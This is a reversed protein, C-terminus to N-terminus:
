AKCAVIFLRRFAFLTVGDARRPYAHRLEMALEKCFAERASVDLAELFPKLATASIWTLVPDDGTMEQTYTTEWIDITTSFPKLWAYYDEPSAVPAPHLLPNLTKAWPGRAATARMLAHSPEAFQNPMQVALVGGSTVNQMLRAILQAHEDLWHLAANSFILDQPEEPTWARADMQRWTAIEGFDMRARALMETSNDVGTIVADPFRTRLQATVGGAGCGLDTIHRADRLTVHDLLDLAPRLRQNAYKLYLEPKWTKPATSM